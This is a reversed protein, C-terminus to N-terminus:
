LAVGESDFDGEPLAEELLDEEAVDLWLAEEVTVGERDADGHEEAVAETGGLLDLEGETEEVREPLGEVVGVPDARVALAQALGVGVIELVGLLVTVLVPDTLVQLVEEADTKADFDTDLVGVVQPPKVGVAESRPERLRWLVAVLETLLEFLGETLKVAEREGETVEHTVILRLAARLALEEEEGEAEGDTETLEEGEGRTETVAEKCPVDEPEGEVEEVAVSLAVTDGVPLSIRGEAEEPAVREAQALADRVRLVTRLQDALAVTHGDAVDEGMIDVEWETPPVKLLEKIEEPVPQLVAVTTGERVGVSDELEETVGDAEVVRVARPVEVCDAEEEAGGDPVPSNGVLLEAAVGEAEADLM